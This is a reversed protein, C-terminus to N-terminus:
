IKRYQKIKKSIDRIGNAVYQCVTNYSYGLVIAIDAYRRKDKYAMIMVQTQMQNPLLMFLSEMLDFESQLQKELIRKEVALDSIEQELELRLIHINEDYSVKFSNIPSGGGDSGYCEGRVYPKSIDEFDRKKKAIDQELRLIPLNDNSILNLAKKLEKYVNSENFVISWKDQIFDQFDSIIKQEQELM